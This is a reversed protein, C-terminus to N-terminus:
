YISLPSQVENEEDMNWHDIDIHLM